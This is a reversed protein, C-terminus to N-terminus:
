EDGQPGEAPLPRRAARMIWARVARAQMRPGLARGPAGSVLGLPRFILILLLAMAIGLEVLGPPTHVSVPGLGIGDEQVRLLVSAVASLLVTGIVAGTLSTLGGVVLMSLTLLTIRTYFADPNFSGLFQAFLFGGMGVFFASVVFAILREPTVRIGAAKAALPDERSARLRLGITSREFLAAAVITVCAFALAVSSTTNSPLGFVSETGNTGADWAKAVENIIVLLAFTALSAALGVLRMIPFGLVGAVVAATAGALLAGPVLGVEMNQVFSPIGDLLTGKLVPPITVWAAVYAGVAVFGIHGFSLVGSLGSFMFIGVVITVYILMTTVERQLSTSGFTESVLVIVGLLAALLLCRSIVSYLEQRVTM